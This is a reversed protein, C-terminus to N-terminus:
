TCPSRVSQPLLEELTYLPIECLAVSENEGVSTLIVSVRLKDRSAAM